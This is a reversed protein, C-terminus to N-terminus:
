KGSSVVLGSLVSIISDLTPAEALDDRKEIISERIESSVAKQLRAFIEVRKISDIGLDAELALSPDLMDLPYGTLESTLGLLLSSM